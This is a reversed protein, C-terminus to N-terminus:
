STGFKMRFRQEGIRFECSKGVAVIVQPMRLWIGNRTKQNEIVWTGNESQTLLAHKGATFPDNSRRIDCDSERGIVYKDAELKIKTQPRGAVIESLIVSGPEEQGAMARTGSPEHMNTALNAAMESTEPVVDQVIDMRYQGRGILVEAKHLLPAKTVRVFLGNRSQLDTVVIRPEGGVTQRTIAAHRSSVMEDHSLQVDGETRGILFQDERIRFSEGTDKGDDCAILVAVPPRSTPHYAKEKQVGQKAKTKAATNATAQKRLEAQVREVEEDSELQTAPPADDNMPKNDTALHNRLKLLFADPQVASAISSADQDTELLAALLLSEHKQHLGLMANRVLSENM